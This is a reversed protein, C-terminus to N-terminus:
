LMKVQGIDLRIGMWGPGGRRMANIRAWYGVQGWVIGEEIFNM